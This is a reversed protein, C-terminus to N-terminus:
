VDDEEGACLERSREFSPHVGVRQLERILKVGWSDADGRKAVDEDEGDHYNTRGGTSKRGLARM